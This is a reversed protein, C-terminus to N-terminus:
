RSRRSVTGACAGGGCRLLTISEVPDKTVVLQSGNALESHCLMYRPPGFLGGEGARAERCAFPYASKLSALSDGVGVRRTLVAADDSTIFGFVRDHALVFAVREYRMVSPVARGPLSFAYPGKVGDPQLPMFGQSDSPDGFRARVAASSSGVGVGQYTGRQENLLKPGAAPDDSGGCGALAALSLIL